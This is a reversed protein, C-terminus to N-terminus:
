SPISPFTASPSHTRSAGSITRPLTFTRDAIKAISSSTTWRRAAFSRAGRGRSESRSHVSGPGHVQRVPELYEQGAAADERGLSRRRREAPYPWGRIALLRGDSCIAPDCLRGGDNSRESRDVAIGTITSPPKPPDNKALLLRDVLGNDEIRTGGYRRDSEALALKMGRLYSGQAMAINMATPVAEVSEIMTRLIHHKTPILKNARFMALHHQVAEIGAESLGDEAM